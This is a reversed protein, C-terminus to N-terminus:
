GDERDLRTLAAAAAAQEASQKSTGEGSGYHDGDVVASCQFVRAHPPGVEADLRYDVQRGIRALREQLETKANRQGPRAADLLAGFAAAIAANTRSPGLDIWAAGIVAEALAAQVSTTRSVPGADDRARPPAAARLAEPLGAARAVEACSVGSVVTQRMWALDGESADPFRTMLEETVALQLVSDGLFELREYSDSRRRAWSRHRLVQSRRSEDLDGLL